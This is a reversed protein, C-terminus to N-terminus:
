MIRDAIASMFHNINDVFENRWEIDDKDTTPVDLSLINNIFYYMFTHEETNKPNMSSTYICFVIIFGKIVNDTFRSNVFRSLVDIASNIDRITFNNNEYKMEFNRIVKNIDELDIHRIKMKKGGHMYADYMKELSHAQKYGDSIDLMIQKKKPDDAYKTEAFEPMKVIFTNMEQKHQLSYIDSYENKVLNRISTNLDVCVDSIKENTIQMHVEEIISNAIMNRVAKYQNTAMGGRGISQNIVKDIKSKLVDPIDSYTIKGKENKKILLQRVKDIDQVSLVDHHEENDKTSDNHHLARVIQSDTFDRDVETSPNLEDDFDTFIDNERNFGYGDNVASVGETIGTSPNVTIAVNKEETNDLGEVLEEVPKEKIEKLTQISENGENASNAADIIDEVQEDTLIVKEEM